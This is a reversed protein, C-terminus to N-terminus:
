AVGFKTKLNRLQITLPIRKGRVETNGCRIDNLATAADRAKYLLTIGHGIASSCHADSGAISPKQYKVAFYNAMINCFGIYFKANFVEVADVVDIVKGLRLIGHRHVQFPHAVAAVGGVNKVLQATERMPIGPEFDRSVGFALLHGEETSIEVGPLVILPLHESEVIEIAELSGNVTDHDTISIIDIGKEVASDLLERVPDRGDHSHTSHAHLEAIM